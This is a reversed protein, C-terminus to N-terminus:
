GAWNMEFIQRHTNALNPNKIRVGSFENMADFMTIYNDYILCSTGFKFDAAKILKTQRNSVSDKEQFAITLPSEQLILKVKIGSRIREETWAEEYESDIGKYFNDLNMWGILEAPKLTLIHEYMQRYGFQGRYYSVQVGPQLSEIDSLEGVLKEAMQSKKLEQYYLKNVDDVAFYTHAGQLFSVVLSKSILSNLVDYISTRKISTHRALSSALSPGLELLKLYVEAEKQNFGIERLKTILEQMPMVTSM